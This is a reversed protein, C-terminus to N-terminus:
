RARPTAAGRVSFGRWQGSFKCLFPASRALASRAPRGAKQDPALSFAAVSFTARHDALSLHVRERGLTAAGAVPIDRLPFACDDEASRDEFGPRVLDQEGLQRLGM